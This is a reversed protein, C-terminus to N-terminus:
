FRFVFGGSPIITNQFTKQSAEVNPVKSYFDRAEFRFGVGSKFPNIDIGAGAQIAPSVMIGSGPDRLVRQPEPVPVGMSPGGGGSFWINFLRSPYAVLRLSPTFFFFRYSRTVADSYTVKSSLGIIFPAEIKLAAHSWTKIRYSPNLQFAPSTALNNQFTTAEAVSLEWRKFPDPCICPDPTGPQKQVVIPTPTPTQALVCPIASAVLMSVFLAIRSKM